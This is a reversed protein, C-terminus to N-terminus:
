RPTTSIALGRGHKELMLEVVERTFDLLSIEEKKEELRGVKAEQHSQEQKMKMEQDEKDQREQDEDQMEQDEKVQRERDEKDQKEQDEKGQRERNVKDQREQDEKDQTEQDEKDQREQDEKGRREKDEKERLLQESHSHHMKWHKSFTRWAQVMSVYLFMWFHKPDKPILEENDQSEEDTLEGDEPPMLVVEVAHQLTM